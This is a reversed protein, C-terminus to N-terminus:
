YDGEEGKLIAMFMCTSAKHSNVTRFYISYVDDLPPTFFFNIINNDLEDIKYIYDIKEGRNNRIEIGTGDVGTETSLIIVYQFGGEFTYRKRIHQDSTVNQSWEALMEYEGSGRSSVLLYLEYFAKMDFCKLDKTISEMDQAFVNQSLTFLFIIAIFHKM